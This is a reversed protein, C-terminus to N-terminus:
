RCVGQTIAQVEPRALVPALAASLAAREDDDLTYYGRERASGGIALAPADASADFRAAYERVREIPFQLAFQTM